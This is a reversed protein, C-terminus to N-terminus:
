PNRQQSNKVQMPVFEKQVEQIERARKGNVIGGWGEMCGDTELIIYANKPPIELNPLSQVQEKIKRVLEYDFPKLRKDGHANTKEYLPRLLIGLKLIHNRAYNLIGLFSRLGKKTKLEEENFNMIKKIIHPQLKITGEGIIAGLFDITLVAIKIKTLSLVLGNDECIKLMKELHKAHEKENKSFVLIDDIYVAIFSETGKFCKDMKRQFVMAVQHFGSKLDFKSFIKAGRVRKIITNIGPLSYQDKYTNDNLSKYNFVMREKGKIERGTTPDITTGSNIIKAMTRHRSKSPRIAGIKLLSEIVHKFQELFVKSGEQNFYISENIELFEEKSVELEAIEVVESLNLTKIETVKKYITIEDGEIQIGGKMSRLFNSGILMEIGNSDRMDFAYILPIKFKNGEILFSGQKIRQTAQETKEKLLEKLLKVENSSFDKEEKPKHPQKGKVNVIKGLYNRACLACTREDDSENFGEIKVFAAEEFPTDQVMISINHHVDGKGESISYVSSDDFDSSVIDWNDDLDMEQYAASRAINGQKSKRKFPKVHFNHPKGKYSRSKRIGYKKRNNKNYGPIPIASCFSLDRLEKALAADKCMKLVFTYTFKIAPLVRASLGPHKAKFSEEIKKSLSPPLKAFLKETTSPFYLKGLKIALQWFDKVFSWLNKTDECTIIDLDWYAKDQENTSGRYPDEM